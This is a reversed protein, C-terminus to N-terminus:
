ESTAASRPFPASLLVSLVPLTAGSPRLIVEPENGSFTWVGDERVTLVNHRVKDDSQNDAAYAGGAALAGGALAAM